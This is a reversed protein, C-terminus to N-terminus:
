GGKVVYGIVMTAISGIIGAIYKGWQRDRKLLAVEMNLNYVSEQMKDLKSALDELQSIILKHLENDSVPFVESATLTSAGM